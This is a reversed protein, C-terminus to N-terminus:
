LVEGLRAPSSNPIESRSMETAPHYDSFVAKEVVRMEEARRRAVLERVMAREAEPNPHYKRQTERTRRLAKPLEIATAIVTPIVVAAVASGTVATILFGADNIM